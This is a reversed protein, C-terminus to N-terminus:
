PAQSSSSGEDAQARQQEAALEVVRHLNRLEDHTGASRKGLRDDVENLIPLFLAGARRHAQRGDDTLELLYSRGDDPNPVRRLHGRREFRKVYSSVTTTPAAMWRALETPTISDSGALVSYVGFEDADLGSQKVADDILATTARSVLWVDFLVNGLGDALPDPQDKEIEVRDAM